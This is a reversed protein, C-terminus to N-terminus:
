KRDSEPAATITFYLDRWTCVDPFGLTGPPIALRAELDDPFDPQFYPPGSQGTTGERRIGHGILPRTSDPVYTGKFENALAMGRQVGRELFLIFFGYHTNPKLQIEDAGTLDFRLYHGGRISEPMAGGMATRLHTYKEGELYDDLEPSKVADYVGKRGPTGSDNVRPEGAIEFLQVAVKAGRAGPLAARDSFGLRLYIADLKFGKEGTLFTQGLDRDRHQVKAETPPAIRNNNITLPTKAFKNDDIKKESEFRLSTTGGPDARLHQIMVLPDDARRPVFDSESATVVLEGSAAGVSALLALVTASLKYM